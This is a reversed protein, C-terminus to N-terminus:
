GRLTSSIPCCTGERNPGHPVIIWIVEHRVVEYTWPYAHERIENFQKKLAFASPPTLTREEEPLTEREQQYAQYQKEWQQRGWNYIFRRTGGARKLYEVQELTPNM